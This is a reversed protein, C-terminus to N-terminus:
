DGFNSFPAWKQRSNSDARPKEDLLAAIYVAAVGHADSSRDHASQSALNGHRM